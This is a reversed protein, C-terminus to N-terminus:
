HVLGKRVAYLIRSGAGHAFGAKAFYPGMTEVTYYSLNLFNAIEKNSRGEAILQLIERERPTLLELSDSKSKDAMERFHDDQLLLTVQPSFYSHGESVANVAGILDAKLSDKLLYGRAGANLARLIYSEDHHMSLIVVSTGTCREVIRSTADIGNLVPMAIDVIAVDPRHQEALSVAERGDGAEAVVSFGPERELLLRLGDRLVNHDDALLIRVPKMRWKRRWPAFPLKIRLKTGRGPKSEIAFAGGLHRVREEMGLLGLGRVREADFGSGDDIVTLEIQHHARQLLVQAMTAQAHRAANNLAEQVVRYICTKHEEPLNAPLDAASVQVRLGTRKATEKAQWNLAPGLGFDDLMSPRLLLAMNRTEAVGRQALDRILEMHRSAAADHPLDLLNESELLIASFTQAAEDHLERSLARREEEQVRVLKASLEQLSARAELSATLNSRVENQLQLVIVVTYGALASGGLLTVAIMGVLGMRLRGALTELQQNGSQLDQENLHGVRDAIQLMATRRPILETYFFEYRYKAREGATWSSTKDLVTWYAGIESRLSAFARADDRDLSKRYEDLASDTKGRLAKLEELESPTGTVPTLLLDRAVTGSLYISSRIQDLMRSRELFRQEVQTNNGQLSNIMLLAGVEAAAMILLLGGFGWLLMFRPHRRM